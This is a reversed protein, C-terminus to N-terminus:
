ADVIRDAQHRLDRVGIDRWRSLNPASRAGGASRRPVHYSYGYTVAIVRHDRTEAREVPATCMNSSAINSNGLDVCARRGRHTRRSPDAPTVMRLSWRTPSEGGHGGLSRRPVSWRASTVRMVDTRDHRAPPRPVVWQTVPGPTTHVLRAPHARIRLRRRQDRHPHTPTAQPGTHRADPGGHQAALPSLLPSAPRGVSM